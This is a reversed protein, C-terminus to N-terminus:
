PVIVGGVTHSGHTAKKSIPPHMHGKVGLTLLAVHANRLNSMHCRLGCDLPQLM